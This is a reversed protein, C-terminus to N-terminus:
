RGRGGKQLLRQSLSMSFDRHAGRTLFSVTSPAAPLKPGMALSTWPSKVTSIVEGLFAM